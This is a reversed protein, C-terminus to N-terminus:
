PREFPILDQVAFCTDIDAAQRFDPGVRVFRAHHDGEPDPASGAELLGCGGTCGTVSLLVEVSDYNFGVEFDDLTEPTPHREPTSFFENWDRQIVNRTGRVAGGVQYAMGLEGDNEPDDAGTPDEPTPLPNDADLVDLELYDSFSTPLFSPDAGRVWFWRELRMECTGDDADRFLGRRGIPSNREMLAQTTARTITVSAAGEVQIGCNFGDVIEIEDGRDVIELYYWNNSRQPSSFLSDLAYPSAKAAWMGTMDCGLTEADSTAADSAVDAVADEVGVDTNETPAVDYEAQCGIVATSALACLAARRRWRFRLM